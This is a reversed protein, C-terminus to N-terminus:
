VPSTNEQGIRGPCAKMRCMNKLRGRANKGEERNSSVEPDAKKDSARKKPRAYLM